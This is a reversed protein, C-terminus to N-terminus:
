THSKALMATIKDLQAQVEATRKFQIDLAEKLKMLLDEHRDLRELVPEVIPEILPEILPKIQQISPAGAAPRKPPMVTHLSDHSRERARKLNREKM